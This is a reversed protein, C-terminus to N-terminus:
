VKEREIQKVLYMIQGTHHSIHGACQLFAMFRDGADEMGKATYAATWDAESQKQLTASVMAIVADLRNLLESKSYRATDAFEQPRNRVYGTGAVETGIYYSLNGILHLILHGMSNGYPYPRSWLQQDSFPAVLVQIKHSAREYYRVFDNSLTSNLNNM